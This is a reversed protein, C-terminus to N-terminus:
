GVPGFLVSGGGGGGGGGGRINIFLFKKSTMGRIVMEYVFDHTKKHGVSKLTAGCAGCVNCM